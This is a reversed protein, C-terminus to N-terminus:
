GPRKSMSISQMAATLHCALGGVNLAGSFNMDLIARITSYSAVGSHGVLEIGHQAGSCPAAVLRNIAL